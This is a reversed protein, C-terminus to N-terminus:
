RASVLGYIAFGAGILVWSAGILRVRPAERQTWWAIDASASFWTRIIATGRALPRSVAMIFLGAIVLILGLLTARSM